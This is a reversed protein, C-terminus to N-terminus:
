DGAWVREYRDSTVARLRNGDALGIKFRRGREFCQNLVSTRTEPRLRELLAM